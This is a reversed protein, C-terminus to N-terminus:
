NFCSFACLLFFDWMSLEGCRTVIACSKGCLWRARMRPVSVKFSRAAIRICPGSDGGSWNGYEDALTFHVPLRNITSDAAIVDVVLSLNSYAYSSEHRVALTLDYTATSDDYEPTFTLPLTQQWGAAPLYVYRAHSLVPKRQCGVMIIAVAAIFVTM